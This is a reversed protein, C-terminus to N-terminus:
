EPYWSSVLQEALAELDIGLQEQHVRVVEEKMPSPLQDFGDKAGLIMGAVAGVTDNDRGYNIIFQLTKEFDGDGFLLGAYLIEWIEGSHFAIQRQNEELAKYITKQQFWELDTGPYNEPIKLKVSDKHLVIAAGEPIKAITISDNLIMSESLTIEDIEFAELVYDQTANAIVHPIRAILRSDQYGFPDIFAQTALISDINQTHLAMNTMAAALSSIDRAYGIDFLTHEYALDYAAEPNPAILGFMPTYLLGACSMEGGYFRDRVQEYRVGGEQYGLAVRAWEKIWDIKEIRIDLSDPQTAIDKDSLTSVQDQYYDVIFQAFKSKNLASRNQDIYQTLMYKWRTDDTTSGAPLNHGWPGEPSQLMLAPTLGLIYGYRKQIAARDWMETSVGMADGIASGVLAGLVRDHFREKSMSFEQAGYSVTSPNPISVKAKSTETTCNGLLLGTLFLFLLRFALKKSNM